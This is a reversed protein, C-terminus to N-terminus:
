QLQHNSKIMSMVLESFINVLKEIENRQTKKESDKRLGCLTWHLLLELSRPVNFGDHSGNSQFKEKELIERRVNKAAQLINQYSDYTNQFSNKVNKSQDHSSCIRKSQNRASLHIFQSDPINQLLMQMLYQKYNVDNEELM